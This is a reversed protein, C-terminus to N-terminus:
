QYYIVFAQLMTDANKKYLIVHANGSLKGKKVLYNGKMEKSQLQYDRVGAMEQITKSFFPRSLGKGTRDIVQLAKITKKERFVRFEATPTLYKESNSHSGDRVLSKVPIFSPLTTKVIRNTDPSASPPSSTTEPVKSPLAPAQAPQGATDAVPKKEARATELPPNTVPTAATATPQTPLPQVAPSSARTSITTDAIKDSGPSLGVIYYIAVAVVVGAVCFIPWTVRTSSKSAPNRMMEEVTPGHLAHVDQPAAPEENVPRVNTGLLSDLEEQFKVPPEPAKRLADGSTATAGISITDRVAEPSHDAVTGPGLKTGDAVTVTTPDSLPVPQDPEGLGLDSTTIEEPTFPSESPAALPATPMFELDGKGDPPAPTHRCEATDAYGESERAAVIDPRGLEADQAAGNDEGPSAENRPPAFLGEQLRVAKLTAETRKKPKGGTSRELDPNQPPSGEVEVSAVHQEELPAQPSGPSSPRASPVKASAGLITALEQHFNGFIEDLEQHLKTATEVKQKRVSAPKRGTSSPTKKIAGLEAVKVDSDGKRKRERTKTSGPVPLPSPPAEEAPILETVLHEVSAQLEADSMSTDLVVDAQTEGSVDISEVLLAITAAKSGIVNKVHRTVIEPSLGSLRGQLFVISPPLQSIEASGEDLSTAVRVSVGPLSEATAVIQQLRQQNAIVLVNLM